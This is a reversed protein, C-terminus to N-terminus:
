QQAPDGGLLQDWFADDLLTQMTNADQRDDPCGAEYALTRSTMENHLERAFEPGFRRSLVVVLARMGESAWITRPDPVYEGAIARDEESEVDLDDDLSPDFDIDAM